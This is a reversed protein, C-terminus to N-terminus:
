ASLGIIIFIRVNHGSIKSAAIVGVPAVPFPYTNQNKKTENLLQEVNLFVVKKLFPEHNENHNHLIHAIFIKTQNRSLHADAM